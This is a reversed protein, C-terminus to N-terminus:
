KRGHKWPLTALLYYNGITNKQWAYWRGLEIFIGIVASLMFATALESCDPCTANYCYSIVGNPTVLDEASNIPYERDSIILTIMTDTGMIRNVVIHTLKAGQEGFRLAKEIIEKPTHSLKVGGLNDMRSLIQEQDEQKQPLPTVIGRLAALTLVDLKAERSSM